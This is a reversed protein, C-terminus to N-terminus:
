VFLTHLAHPPRGLLRNLFMGLLFAAVKAALRTYLGWRSRAGPHQFGFVTSLFAFTTDIIQRHSALWRCDARSWDVAEPDHRPPISIVTAHYAAAWHQRWRRSNFGRDALYPRARGVGVAQFAGIHGVPPTAREARSAHPSPAPGVLQPQGSRMSLFAELLWRENVNGHGILWGTIVGSATVSMLLKDGSFFGGTTGGHGRQSEWLAHSTEKLGQSNSYAHIPVGDVSEYIDEARELCNGLLQQLRIFAGWLGRVRRNFASKGIMRPFMGRGHRQVWRVLGRESHWPVGVRWQGVLAITLVESDSLRVAGGAHKNVEAAIAAKYWDDVMVYVRTFFTELDM